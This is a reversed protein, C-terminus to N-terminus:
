TKIIYNLALYPNMINHSESGGTAYNGRSGGSQDTTASYLKFGNSGSGTGTTVGFDRMTHNHSALEAETISHREEGGKAGLSRDTFTLTLTHSGSGTSTINIGSGSVANALSSALKITTSTLRIVYYTSGATLGGPATGDTTFVVEKGTHLTDNEDVTITDSTNYSAAPQTDVYTSQGAGIAARDRLDPLNFTSAGDGEGYTTGILNFLRSYDTRSVASGDCLLWYEPAISGAFPMVSGTPTLFEAVLNAWNTVPRIVIIDGVESGNDTYGDAIEDIEINSGDVHGAFDVATAESIVTITEGTVPDTFTHPTGMSAFFKAPVNAVTNVQITTAGSSRVNTVTMLSANAAGDSAKVYDITPQM